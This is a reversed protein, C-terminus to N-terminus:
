KSTAGSPDSAFPLSPSNAVALAKTAKADTLGSLPAGDQELPAGTAVDHITWTRDAEQRKAFKPLPEAALAGAAPLKQKAKAPTAGAADKQDKQDTQPATTFRIM